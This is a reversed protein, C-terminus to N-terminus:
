GACDNVCVGLLKCVPEALCDTSAKKVCAETELLGDFCTNCAATVTAAPDSCVAPMTTGMGGCATFCPSAAACVCDSIAFGIFKKQPEPNAKACCAGCSNNAATPAVCATCDSAASCADSGTGTSSTTSGTTTDSGSTTTMAGTTAGGSGAGSGGIDGSTSTTTESGGCAAAAVMSLVMAGLAWSKM